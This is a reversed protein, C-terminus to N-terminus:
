IIIGNKHAETIDADWKTINLYLKRGILNDDKYPNVRYYTLRIIKVESGNLQKHVIMKSGDGKNEGLAHVHYKCHSCEFKTKYCDCVEVKHLCNKYIDPNIMKQLLAITLNM